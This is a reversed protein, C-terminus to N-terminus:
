KENVWGWVQQHTAPQFGEQPYNSVTYEWTNSDPEYEAKVSVCYGDSHYIRYAFKGFENHYLEANWKKGEIVQEESLKKFINKEISM